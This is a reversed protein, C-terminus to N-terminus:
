VLIDLIKSGEEFMKDKTDSDTSYFDKWITLYEGALYDNYTDIDSNNLYSSIKERTATSLILTERDELFELIDELLIRIIMELYITKFSNDRLGEIYNLAKDPDTEINRGDNFVDILKSLKEDLFKKEKLFVKLIFFRVTDNFEKLPGELYPNEFEVKSISDEEIDLIDLLSSFNLLDIISLAPFLIKIGSIISEKDIYEEVSLNYCTVLLEEKNRRVKFDEKFTNIKTSFICNDYCKLLIYTLYENASALNYKKGYYGYCFFWFIFPNDMTIIRDYPNETNPYLKNKLEKFFSVEGVEVPVNIFVFDNKINSADINVISSEAPKGVTEFVTLSKEFIKKTDEPLELFLAHSELFRDILKISLLAEDSVKDIEDKTDQISLFILEIAGSSKIEEITKEFVGINAEFNASYTNFKELVLSIYEETYFANNEKRTSEVLLFSNLNNKINTIIVKIENPLNEDIFRRNASQFLSVISSIKSESFDSDTTSINGLYGLLYLLYYHPKSSDTEDLPTTGNLYLLKETENFSYEEGENAFLNAVYDFKEKFYNQLSDFLTRYEDITDLGNNLLSLMRNLYETFVSSKFIEFLNLYASLVKLEEKINYYYFNAYFIDITTEYIKLRMNTLESFASFMADRDTLVDSFLKALNRVEPNNQNSEVALEEILTKNSLTSNLSEKLKDYVTKAM